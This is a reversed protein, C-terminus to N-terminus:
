IVSAMLLEGINGQRIDTIGSGIIIKMRMLCSQIKRQM